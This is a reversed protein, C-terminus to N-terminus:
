TGGTLYSQIWEIVRGTIGYDHRLRNLLIQHDVTDFTASLDLLGLLTVLGADAAQYADSMVKITATETSRNKRYASQTEPLLHHSDFYGIIQEYVARELLKSLFTLNSIPRYNSLDLPDLSAKKLVPTVSALKQSAPFVGLRMSANFLASIFPSLEVAYKQIVWTPVPDLESSKCAAKSLLRQVSIADIPEFEVCSFECPPKNFVPPAASATSSRVGALKENFAELFREATLEDSTPPKTKGKRMLSSLNRWLKKPDGKSESIKREWFRSQKSAFLLQKKRAQTIWALRDTDLRSRRYRQEFARTRRKAKSCDSDFWPTM